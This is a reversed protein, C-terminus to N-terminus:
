EQVHQFPHALPVAKGDEPIHDHRLMHVHQNGLWHNRFRETESGPAHIRRHHHLRHLQSKRLMPPRRATDGPLEPLPPKIVEVHPTLPFNHLLQSVHVPIRHHAPQRLLGIPPPPATVPPVRVSLGPQDPDIVPSPPLLLNSILRHSPRGHHHPSSWSLGWKERFAPTGWTRTRKKSALRPGNLGPTPQTPGNLVDCSAGVWEWAESRSSPSPAGGWAIKM